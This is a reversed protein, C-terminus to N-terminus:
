RAVVSRGRRDQERVYVREDFQLDVYELAGFRDQLAPRLDIYRQLRAAFQRDGLHLWAPDDDFMVVADRPDAVDIQSLRRRLDPRAELGSVLAATLGTQEDRARPGGDDSGAALLGDVIPLDLDRYAAGYEDIIKGTQDVLYLQQNLRAIVLPTREVVDVVITSPLIRSLHIRDIWPSDMARLRYREFDVLFVNEDRLGALLSEVEGASLRANGKVTIDRVLFLDSAALRQASWTAAVAVVALAACWRFVGWITRGLRRHRHPLLEPRRFRRDAPAAVGAAPLGRRTSRSM